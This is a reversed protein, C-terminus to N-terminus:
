LYKQAMANAIYKKAKETDFKGDSYLGSAADVSLNIKFYDSMEFYTDLYDPSFGGALAINNIGKDLCRLIKEKYKESSERVGRGCSNDLLIPIKKSVIIDVFDKDDLLLSFNDDTLPFIVLYRDACYRLIEVYNEKLDDLQMCKVYPMKQSIIELDKIPEVSHKFSYHLVPVFDNFKETASLIEETKSLLKEDSLSNFDLTDNSLYVKALKSKEINEVFNAIDKVQGVSDVGNIGVFYINEAEEFSHQFKIKKTEMYNKNHINPEIVLPVREVVKIGLKTIENVKSPNNTILSIEKVGLEVLINKAVTYEREDPKHGLKINAEHTDYGSDQLAYAKIKEYLGIGRGEQRMYIFLGNGSEAIMQLSKEKQEGCDCRLSGFTDGTMCEDHIRVLVPRSIDLKPTVLVVSELGKEAPYVTITFDGYKTPLKSFVSNM